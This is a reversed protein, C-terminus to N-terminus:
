LNRGFIRAKESQNFNPPDTGVRWTAMEISIVVISLQINESAIPGCTIFTNQNTKNKV